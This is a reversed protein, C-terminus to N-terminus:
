MSTLFAPVLGIIVEKQKKRQARKLAAMETADSVSMARKMRTGSEKKIRDISQQTPPLPLEPPKATTATAAAKEAKKRDREEQRRKQALEEEFKDWEDLVKQLEPSLVKTRTTLSVSRARQRGHKGM